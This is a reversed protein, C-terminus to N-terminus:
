SAAPVRTLIFSPRIISAFSPELTIIFFLAIQFVMVSCPVSFGPCQGSPGPDRASASFMSGSCVQTVPNPSFITCHAISQLKRYGPPIRPASKDYEREEREGQHHGPRNADDVLQLSARRLGPKDGCIMCVTFSRMM